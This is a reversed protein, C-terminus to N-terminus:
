PSYNIVQDIKGQEFISFANKGIGSDLFLEHLDKLRVQQKNIYYESEGNRNLRRTVQLEDYETPLSGSTDTLTITVEAFNMPKRTSTGAFIVDPMRGGRLSKASQEGLVWRFADSIYQSGVGMLALLQPSEM